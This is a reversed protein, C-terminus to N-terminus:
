FVLRQRKPKPTVDHARRPSMVENGVGLANEDSVSRKRKESSFLLRCDGTKRVKWFMKLNSKQAVPTVVVKCLKLKTDSTKHSYYTVKNKDKECRVNSTNTNQQSSPNADVSLLLKLKLQGPTPISATVKPLQVPSGVSMPTENIKLAPTTEITSDSARSTSTCSTMTQSTSNESSDDSSSETSTCSTMSQVHPSVITDDLERASGTCSTLSTLPRPEVTDVARASNPCPGVSQSTQERPTNVVMPSEHTIQSVVNENQLSLNDILNKLVNTQSDTESVESFMNAEAVNDGLICSFMDCDNLTLVPTVSNDVKDPVAPIPIEGSLIADICPLTTTSNTINTTVSSAPLMPLGETPPAINKVDEVNAVNDGPVDFDYVDKTPHTMQIDPSTAPTVDSKYCPPKDVNRIPIHKFLFKYLNPLKRVIKDLVAFNEKNRVFKQHGASRSHTRLSDKYWCQCMECYGGKNHSFRSPKPGKKVTSGTTPRVLVVPCDFPSGGGNDAYLLPMNELKKHIPKYQCSDDEVKIFCKDEWKIPLFENPPEKKTVQKNSAGLEKCRKIFGHVHETTIGMEAAKDQINSANNVESALSESTNKRAKLLLARGRSLPIDQKRKAIDGRDLTTEGRLRSPRKTLPRSDSVCVHVDNSLFTEVSGGLQRIYGEVRQRVPKSKVDVYFSKSKFPMSRFELRRRACAEPSDDMSDCM